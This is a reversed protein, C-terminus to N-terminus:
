LHRRAWELAEIKGMLTNLLNDKLWDQYDIKEIEKRKQILRLIEANIKMTQEDNM